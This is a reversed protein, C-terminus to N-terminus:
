PISNKLGVIMFCILAKYLEGWSNYDVSDGAFYEECKQLYTEDFM